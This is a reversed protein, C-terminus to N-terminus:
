PVPVSLPVSLVWPLGVWKSISTPGHPQHTQGLDMMARARPTAAAWLTPVQM